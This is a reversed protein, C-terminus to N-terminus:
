LLAGVMADAAFRGYREPTWGCRRVMLDFMEPASYLWLVDRATSADVGPRFAGRDALRAAHDAMRARRGQDLERGLAAAEPDSGAAEALLLLIPAVKPAVEAVLEGWGRIVTEPDVGATDRLTDSRDEAPVTGDGRLARECLARVLGPKGGFTKYLTATSVGAGVAISDVTTADYGDALFRREAMDLVEERRRRAAERRRSADYRRTGKVLRTPPDLSM